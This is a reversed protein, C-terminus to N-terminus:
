NANLDILGAIYDQMARLDAEAGDFTAEIERFKTEAKAVAREAKDLRHATESRVLTLYALKDLLARVEQASPQKASPATRPIDRTAIM